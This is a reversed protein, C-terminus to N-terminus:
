GIKGFISNFHLKQHTNKQVSLEALESLDAQERELVTEKALSYLGREYSVFGIAQIMLADNVMKARELMKILKGENEALDAKSLADRFSMQRMADDGSTEKGLGLGVGFLDATLETIRERRISEYEERLGELKDNLAERLEGIDKNKAFDTLRKNSQIEDRKRNFDSKLKKAQEIIESLTLTNKM